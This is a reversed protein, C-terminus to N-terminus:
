GGQQQLSAAVVMGMIAQQAAVLQEPTNAAEIQTLVVEVMGLVMMAQSKRVAFREPELQALGSRASEMMAPWKAALQAPVWRDDVRVLPLEEPLRGPLRLRVVAADAQTSVLEVTTNDLYYRLQSAYPDAPVLKSVEAALVMVRSGTSALAKEPDLTKVTEVRGLESASLAKLLQAAADLAAPSRERDLDPRDLMGSALILEKKAELISGARGVIAFSRNYVEADVTAAFRHVLDTLDRRYSSPLAQWLIEPRQERLGQVVAAFTTDPAAFPDPPAGTCSGVAVLMCGLAFARPARRRRRAADAWPTAAPSSM